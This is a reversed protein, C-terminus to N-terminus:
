LLRLALGDRPRTEGAAAVRRPAAALLRAREALFRPEGELLGVRLLDAVARRVERAARPAGGSAAFPTKM